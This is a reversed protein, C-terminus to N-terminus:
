YFEDNLQYKDILRSIEPDLNGRHVFSPNLTCANLYHQVATADEGNRSCLLAMVYEEKDGPELDKLVQMASANYGMACYAVATNYDNYPRLLTVASQYDHEKLARVGRMYATDPVTTHVTDKVMGARHMCFDFRVTRLRPYLIERFYRYAPMASLAAERDDPDQIDMVRAFAEKQVANLSDDSAVVTKLMEWNEPVNDAIFRLHSLDGFYSAIAKSRELSLQRNFNFSGEPSCSATVRISDIEYEGGELLSNLNQKIRGIEGANNGLLTDVVTSGQAFDIWCVSNAEVVREIVHTLYKERDDALSSLSSIYFTLPPTRELEMIRFDEQYIDGDMVIDARTLGNRVNLSQVYSYIFEGDVGTLVTDLRIGQTIIPVKVYRAYMKGVSAIKRDNRRIKLRSTYHDLAQRHTVGFSSAFEQETVISTDNRFRYVQPINRRLFIELDRANVFAASDTIISDLFRQYRQYGRLQAERYRSGSITISDLKVTEGLATMEPRLRIQWNSDMMREPVIVDFRLDVKGDREAVNRFRASVVAADLRDNAVMEGNEDKVANMIIVERGDAGTVRLTDRHETLIPVDPLQMQPRYMELQVPVAERKLTEM